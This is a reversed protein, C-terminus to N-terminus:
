GPDVPDVPVGQEVPDVPVVSKAAGTGVCEYKHKKARWAKNPVGM